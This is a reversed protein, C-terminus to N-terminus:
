FVAQVTFRYSLAQVKFGITIELRFSNLVKLGADGKRSDRKLLVLRFSCVYSAGTATFGLLACGPNCLSLGSVVLTM